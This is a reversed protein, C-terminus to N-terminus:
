RQLRWHNVPTVLSALDDLSGPCGPHAVAVVHSARSIAAVVDIQQIPCDVAIVSLLPDGEAILEM